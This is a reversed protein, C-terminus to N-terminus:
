KRRMEVQHFTPTLYVTYKELANYGSGENLNLCNKLSDKLVERGDM